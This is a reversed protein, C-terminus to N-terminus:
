KGDASWKSGCGKGRFVCLISILAKATQNLGEKKKRKKANKTAIRWMM